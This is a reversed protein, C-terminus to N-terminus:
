IDSDVDHIGFGSLGENFEKEKGGVKVIWGVRPM